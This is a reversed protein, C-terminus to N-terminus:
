RAALWNEPCDHPPLDPDPYQYVIAGPKVRTTEFLPMPSPPNGMAKSSMPRLRARSMLSWMVTWDPLGPRCIIWNIEEYLEPHIPMGHDKEDKVDGVFASYLKKLAGHALLLDEGQFYVELPAANFISDLADRHLSILSM